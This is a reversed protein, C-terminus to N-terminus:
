EILQHLQKLAVSNDCYFATRIRTKIKSITDPNNIVEYLKENISKQSNECVWGCNREVIMDTSSTTETSLIPIGLCLAEDIVLPAAEHYSPIFLFDANKMYRYPNTQGGYFVVNSEIQLEKCLVNLPEMSIGQGVIHLNVKVGRDLVYKLAHLARV